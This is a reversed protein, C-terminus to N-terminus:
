GKLIFGWKSFHLLDMKTLLPLQGETYLRDEFMILYLGGPLRLMIFPNLGRSGSYLWNSVISLQARDFLLLYGKLFVGVLIWRNWLVSLSQGPEGGDVM